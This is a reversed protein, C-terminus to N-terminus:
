ENLHSRTKHVPSWTVHGTHEILYSTTKDLDSIYRSWEMSNQIAINPKWIDDPAVHFTKIRQYQSPDWRLRSDLWRFSHWFASRMIQNNEDIGSLYELHFYLDVVIPHEGDFPPIRPDYDNSFKDRYLKTATNIYTDNQCICQQCCLPVIILIYLYYNMSM